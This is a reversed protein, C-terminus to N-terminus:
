SELTRPTVSQGVSHSVQVPDRAGECGGVREPSQGGPPAGAMVRRRTTEAAFCDLSVAGVLASGALPKETRGAGGWAPLAPTKLLPIAFVPNLPVM